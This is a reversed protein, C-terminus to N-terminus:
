KGVAESKSWSATEKATVRWPTSGDQNRVYTLKVYRNRPYECITYTKQKQEQQPNIARVAQFIEGHYGDFIDNQVHNQTPQEWVHVAEVEPNTVCQPGTLVIDDDGAYAATPILAGALALAVLTKKV